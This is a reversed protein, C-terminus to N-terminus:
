TLIDVIIRIIRNFVLFCRYVTKILMVNVNLNAELKFAFINDFGINIYIKAAM